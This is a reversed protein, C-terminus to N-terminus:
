DQAPRKPIRVLTEREEPTAKELLQTLLRDATSADSGPKARSLKERATAATTSIRAGPKHVSQTVSSEKSLALATKAACVGLAITAVTTLLM